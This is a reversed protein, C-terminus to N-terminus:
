SGTIVNGIIQVIFGAVILSLGLKSLRDYKKVKKKAAEDEAKSTELMLFGGGSRSVDPGLAFFWLLLVGIADLSLGLNVLTM